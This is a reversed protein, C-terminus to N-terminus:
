AAEEFAEAALLFKDVPLRLERMWLNVAWVLQGTSTLECDCTGQDLVEEDTADGGHDCTGDGNDAHWVLFEDWADEFSEAVVYHTEGFENGSLYVHLMNPAFLIRM